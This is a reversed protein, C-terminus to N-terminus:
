DESTTECYGGERSHDCQQGGVGEVYISHDAHVGDIRCAYMNRQLHRTSLTKNKAGQDVTKLFAKFVTIEKTHQIEKKGGRGETSGTGGEWWM